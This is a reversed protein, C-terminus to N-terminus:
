WFFELILSIAIFVYLAILLGKHKKPETKSAMYIGLYVGFLAPVAVWIAKSIGLVGLCYHVLFL